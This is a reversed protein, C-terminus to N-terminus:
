QQCRIMITEDHPVAVMQNPKDKLKKFQINPSITIDSTRNPMQNTGVGDVFLSRSKADLNEIVEFIQPRQALSYQNIGAFESVRNREINDVVCFKVGQIDKVQTVRYTGVYIGLVRVPYEDNIYSSCVTKRGLVKCNKPEQSDTEFVIQGVQVLTDRGITKGELDGLLRLSFMHAVTAGSDDEAVGNQEFLKNYQTAEAIFGQEFTRLSPGGTTYLTELFSGSVSSYGIELPIDYGNRDKSLSVFNKDFDSFPIEMNFQKRVGGEAESTLILLPNKGKRKQLSAKNRCNKATVANIYCKNINSLGVFNSKNLIYPELVYLGGGTVESSGYASGTSGNGWELSTSGGGWGSSDSAGETGDYSFPWSNSGTAGETVLKTPAFSGPPNWTGTEASGSLDGFATSSGGLGTGWGGGGSIAFVAWIPEEM